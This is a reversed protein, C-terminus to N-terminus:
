KKVGGTYGFLNNEKIIQDVGDPVAEEWGEECNKIKHLVDKSFINLVAENYNLDKVRKNTLLYNYLPGLRPHIPMNESNLAEDERNPKYPYLYIKLDRTFIIGFAELIGGNLNRYYKDDFIELLNNVGIILGMRAKTFNSFYEILKYYKRYNSILVTHGLDCLLDARDLFDKEDIDGEMKLNSLTIEFLLLVNEKEVRNEEVFAEYGNEM